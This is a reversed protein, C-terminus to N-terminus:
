KETFKGRDLRNEGAIIRIPEKNDMMSQVNNGASRCEIHIAHVDYTCPVFEPGLRVRVEGNEV